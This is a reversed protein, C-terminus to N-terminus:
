RFPLLATMWHLAQLRHAEVQRPLGCPRRTPDDRQSSSSSLSPFRHDTAFPREPDVQLINIEFPFVNPPPFSKELTAASDPHQGTGTVGEVRDAIMLQFISETPNGVGFVAGLTRGVAMGRDGVPEFNEKANNSGYYGSTNLALCDKFHRVTFSYWFRNWLTLLINTKKVSLLNCQMRPM